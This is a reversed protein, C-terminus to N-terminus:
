RLSLGKEHAVLWRNHPIPRSEPVAFRWWAPTVVTVALGITTLQRICERELEASHTEIIWSVGGRGLLRRAGSLVEVESGEVDVKVLCPTQVDGFLSDLAVTESTQGSGARVELLRLRDDRELGNLRLNLRLQEAARPDPEFAFVSHAATRTLFYFCYAGDAAGIDITTAAGGAFIRLWGHLEREYLGLYVQTHCGLDLSMRLGKLAGGRIVRTRSGRAVVRNKLQGLLRPSAPQNPIIAARDPDQDLPTM